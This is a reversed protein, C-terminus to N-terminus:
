RRDDIAPQNVLRVAGGLWSHARCRGERIVRLLLLTRHGMMQIRRQGALVALEVDIVQVDERAVVAGHEDHVDVGVDGADVGLRAEVRLRAILELHV